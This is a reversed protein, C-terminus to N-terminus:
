LTITGLLNYGTKAEWMDKNALRISFDPNDHISPYPDPLNLYVSWTGTMGADLKGTLDISFSNNEPLWFRPDISQKFVHKQTGQVLIMEVDRPNQPAAFGDNRLTLKVKFNKGAKPNEMFYAEEAVLHYGLHQTIYGFKTGKAWKSIVDGNYGHNLYTWHYLGMQKIANDANNLACEQCIEGGMLTYKSDQQWFLREEDSNYTGWDTSNSIFCDNHASIRAEPKDTHATYEDLPKVDIGMQKLYQMKYGPTRLAIQRDQPFAELMHNVVEWRPAWQADTTPSMKFYSTYYWEGWVGIFGAEFGMIVDANRQLVPALQDIHRMMWDKDANWPKASDDDSYKYAFRIVAKAGGQRLAEFNKEMRDLYAQPIDSAVYDALYYCHLYVTQYYSGKRNAVVAAKTLVLNLNNSEYYTLTHFGREPNPFSTELEEYTYSPLEPYPQPQNCSALLMLCLPLLFTLRLQM